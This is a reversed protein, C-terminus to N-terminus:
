ALFATGHYRMAEYWEEINENLPSARGELVAMLHSFLAFFYPHREQWEVLDKQLGFAQLAWLNSVGEALWEDLNTEAYPSSPPEGAAIVKVLERALMRHTLAHGFGEHFLINILVWHRLLTPDGKRSLRYSLATNDSVTIPFLFLVKQDGVKQLRGNILPHYDTRIRVEDIETLAPLPVKLLAEEVDRQTPVLVHTTQGEGSVKVEREGAASPDWVFRLRHGNQFFLKQEVWGGRLLVIDSRRVLYPMTLQDLGLQSAEELYPALFNDCVDESSLIEPKAGARRYQHVLEWSGSQRRLRNDRVYYLVWPLGTEEETFLEYDAVRYPTQRGLLLPTPHCKKLLTRARTVLDRGGLLDAMGSLEEVRELTASHPTGLRAQWEAWTLYGGGAM